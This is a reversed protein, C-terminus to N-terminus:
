KTAEESDNVEVGCDNCIGGTLTDQFDIHDCEYQEDPKVRVVEIGMAQMLEVTTM